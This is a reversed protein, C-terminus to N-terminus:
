EAIFAALQERYDNCIDDIGLGKMQAIFEDLKAETNDGFIGFCFSFRYENFLANAAALEAEYKAPDYNFGNVPFTDDPALCADYMDKYVQYEPELLQTPNNMDMLTANNAFSNWPFDGAEPGPIFYKGDETLTYHRGEIGGVLLKNCIPDFKMVDLAIAAREMHKSNVPFGNCYTMYGGRRVKTNEDYCYNLFVPTDDTMRTRVSAYTDYGANLLASTGAYFNDDVQIENSMVSSPVYGNRYFDAMQLCFQRYEDTDGFWKLDQVDFPKGTDYRWVMWNAAGANLDWQHYRGVFWYFADMPYSNQPNFAYIGTTPTDKAICGMFEVMKEYSNIDEAKYGYKDLLSKRVWAGGTGYGANNNPVGYYLDGFKVERWSAAAQKKATEPMYTEIFNWDFGKYGGNKVYDSFACFNAGYIMDVDEDGALYLSLKTQFDGYNIFTLNIKTNILEMLRENAKELIEDWDNFGIGPIYWNIETYESTDLHSWPNAEEAATVGACGLLMLLALLLSVIRKM